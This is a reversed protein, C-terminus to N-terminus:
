LYLQVILMSVKKILELVVTRSSSWATVVWGLLTDQVVRLVGHVRFKIGAMVLLQEDDIQAMAPGSHGQSIGLHTVRGEQDRVVFIRGKENHETLM